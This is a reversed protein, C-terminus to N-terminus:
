EDKYKWIHHMDDVSMTVTGSNGSNGLQVTALTYGNWDEVKLVTVTVLATDGVKFKIM